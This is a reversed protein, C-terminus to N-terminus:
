FFTAPCFYPFRHRIYDCVPGPEPRGKAAGASPFVLGRVFGDPRQAHGGAARQEPPEPGGAPHPSRIGPSRALVVPAAAPAAAAEEEEAAAVVMVVEPVAEVEATAVAFTVVEVPSCRCTRLTPGSAPRSQRVPPRAWWRPWAMAPTRAAWCASCCRSVSGAQASWHPWTPARPRPPRPSPAPKAPRTLRSSGRGAAVTKGACARLNFEEHLKSDLFELHITGKKFFRIKFFKSECVNDFSGSGVRGLERFKAELAHEILCTTEYKEGSLYCMVKDVDDYM